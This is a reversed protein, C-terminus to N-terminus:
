AATAAANRFLDDVSPGGARQGGSGPFRFGGGGFLTRAEDYEKRKDADPSCTTRRPSRRSANRPRTTAPTRDPHHERALKRYAKKIERAPTRPSASCRTSTRRSGNRPQEHVGGRTRTSMPAEVRSSTTKNSSEPEDAPLDVPDVTARRTRARGRRSAGARLIRDGVQYGPAPDGRLYSRSGRATPM